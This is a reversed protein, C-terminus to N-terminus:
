KPCNVCQARRAAYWAAKATKQAPTLSNWWVVLTDCGDCGALPNGGQGTGTGIGGIVIWVFVVIFVIIAITWFM